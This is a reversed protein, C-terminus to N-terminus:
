SRRLKKYHQEVGQRTEGANLVHCFHRTERVIGDPHMGDRESYYKDADEQWSLSIGRCQQLTMNSADHLHVRPESSGAFFFIAVLLQEM